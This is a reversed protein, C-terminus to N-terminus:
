ISTILLLDRRSLPVKCNCNYPIKLDENKLDKSLDLFPEFKVNELKNKSKYCKLCHIKGCTSEYFFENSHDCNKIDKGRLLGQPEELRFIKLKYDKIKKNFRPIMIFNETRTHRPLCDYFFPTEPQTLQTIMNKLKLIYSDLTKISETYDENLHNLVKEYRLNVENKRERLKKIADELKKVEESTNPDM